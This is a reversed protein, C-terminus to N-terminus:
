LWATNYFASLTHENEEEHKGKGRIVWAMGDFWESM